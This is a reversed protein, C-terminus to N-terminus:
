LHAASNVGRVRASGVAATQLVIGLTLQQPGILQEKAVCFTSFPTKHRSSAHLMFALSFLPEDQGGCLVFRTM